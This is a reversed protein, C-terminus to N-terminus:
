LFVLHLKCSSLKWSLSATQLFILCLKCSVLHCKALFCSTTQLISICNTLHCNALHCNALHYNALFNPVIAFAHFATQLSLHCSCICNALTRLVIPSVVFSFSFPDLRLSSRLDWRSVYLGKAWLIWSRFSTPLALRAGTWRRLMSSTVSSPWDGWPYLRDEM